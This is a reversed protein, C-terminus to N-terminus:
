SGAGSGEKLLELRAIRVPRAGDMRGDYYIIKPIDRSMMVVLQARFAEKLDYLDKDPDAVMHANVILYVAWSIDTDVYRKSTSNKGTEAELSVIAAPLSKPIDNINFQIEAVSTAQLAQVILDRESTL